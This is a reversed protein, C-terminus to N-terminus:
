YEGENLKWAGETQKMFELLKERGSSDDTTEKMVKDFADIWDKKMKILYQHDGYVRGKTKDLILFPDYSDINMGRLEDRIGYRTRPMCRSELFEEFGKWDTEERVGFARSVMDDTLNIIKVTENLSCADIITAPIEKDSFVYVIRSRQVAEKIIKHVTGLATKEQKAINRMSNGQRYLSLIRVRKENDISPRGKTKKESQKIRKLEESTRQYAETLAAVKKKLREIERQQRELEEM